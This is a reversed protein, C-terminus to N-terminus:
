LRAWMPLPWTGVVYYLGPIAGLDNPRALPRPKMRACSGCSGFAGHPAKARAWSQKLVPSAGDARLVEPWM